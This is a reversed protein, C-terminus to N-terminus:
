ALASDWDDDSVQDDQQNQPQDVKSTPAPSSSRDRQSRHEENRYYRRREEEQYDDDSYESWEDDSYRAYRNRDHRDRDDYRDYRNDRRDDRPQRRRRVFKTEPLDKAKRINDIGEAWSGQGVALVGSPNSLIQQVTGDSAQPLCPYDNMSTLDVEKEKRAVPMGHAGRDSRAAGSYGSDRGGGRRARLRDSIGGGGGNRDNRRDRRDPGPGSRDSNRPHPRMRVHARGDDPRGSQRAKGSLGSKSMFECLSMKKAKPEPKPEPEAKSVDVVNTKNM